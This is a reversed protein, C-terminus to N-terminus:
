FLGYPTSIPEFVSPISARVDAFVQVYRSMLWASLSENEGSVLHGALAYPLVGLCLTNDLPIDQQFDPDADGGEAVFLVPCIPRKNTEMNREDSYLYLQPLIANIIPITRNKYDITDAHVTQGTRKAQEDILAMAMDFVKQVTVM